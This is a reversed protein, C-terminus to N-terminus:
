AVTFEVVCSDVKRFIEDKLIGVVGVEQVEEETSVEGVNDLMDGVGIM